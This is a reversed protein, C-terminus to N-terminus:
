LTLRSVKKSALMYWNMHVMQQCNDLGSSSLQRHVSVPPNAQQCTDTSARSALHFQSPTSPHYNHKPIGKIMSGFQLLWTSTTM